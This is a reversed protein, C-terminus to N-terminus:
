LELQVPLNFYTFCHAILYLLYNQLDKLYLSFYVYRTSIKRHNQFVFYDKIHLDTFFIQYYYTFFSNHKRVELVNKLRFYYKIYNYM